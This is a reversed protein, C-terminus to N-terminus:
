NFLTLRLVYEAGTEQQPWLVRSWAVPDYQGRAWVANSDSEAPGPLSFSLVSCFLFFSLFFPVTCVENDVSDIYCVNVFLACDLIAHVLEQDYSAREPLRRVKNIKSVDYKADIEDRQRHPPQRQIRPPVLVSSTGRRRLLVAIISNNTV